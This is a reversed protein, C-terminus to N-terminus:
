STSAGLMKLCDAILPPLTTLGICKSGEDALLYEQCDNRNHDSDVEPRLAAPVMLGISM